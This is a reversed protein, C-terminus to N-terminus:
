LIMVPAPASEAGTSSVATVSFNKGNDCGTLLANFVLPSTALVNGVLTSGNYINYSVVNSSSSATWKIALIPESKFLFINCKRTGIVNTPTSPETPTIQYCLDTDTIPVDIPASIDGYEDSSVVYYTYSQGPTLGPIQYSFTTGSVMAVLNQLYPDSFIEYAVPTPGSSPPRWSLTITITNGMPTFCGTIFSPPQPIPYCSDTETITVDIPASIDGYEDSSVVYYTYSQGPALDPIEYSFMTGPVTAILDYLSPDSFIEYATPTPGSSPATWSIINTITNGMPKFCGTISSPPDLPTPPTYPAFKYSTVNGRGPASLFYAGYNNIPSFALGLLNGGSPLPSGFPTMNGLANVSFVFIPNIGQNVLAIFQSDPSFAISTAGVSYPPAAQSAQITSVPDTSPIGNNLTYLYITSGTDAVALFKGDPSYAVSTVVYYTTQSDPTIYDVPNMLTGYVQDVEYITFSYEPNFLNLWGNAKAIFMSDPSFAISNQSYSIQHQSLNYLGVPNLLGTNLVQYMAIGADGSTDGNSCGVAVFQGNPSYTVTFAENAGNFVYNAEITPVGTSQDVSYLELGITNAPTGHRCSVVLSQNDPSYAACSSGGFNPTLFPFFPPPSYPSYSPIETLEGDGEFDVTYVSVYDPAGDTVDNANALWKGNPSYNLGCPLAYINNISAIPSNPVPTIITGSFASHSALLLQIGLAILYKRYDM